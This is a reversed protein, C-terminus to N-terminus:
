FFICIIMHSEEIGEEMIQIEVLPPFFKGIHFKESRTIIKQFLIIESTATLIQNNNNVNNESFKRKFIKLGFVGKENIM